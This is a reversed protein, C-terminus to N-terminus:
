CFITVAPSSYLESCISGMMYLTSASTECGYLLDVLVACIERFNKSPSCVVRLLLLNQIFRCFASFTTDCTSKVAKLQSPVSEPSCPRGSFDRSREKGHKSKSMGSGGSIPEETRDVNM